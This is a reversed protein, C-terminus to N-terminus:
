GAVGSEGEPEAFRDELRELYRLLTDLERTLRKDPSSIRAAALILADLERSNVRVSLKGDRVPANKLTYALSAPVDRNDLFLDRQFTNLRISVRGNAAIRSRQRSFPM